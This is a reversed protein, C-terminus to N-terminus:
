TIFYQKLIQFFFLNHTDHKQFPNLPAFGMAPFYKELLYVKSVTLFFTMGTDESIVEEGETHWRRRM